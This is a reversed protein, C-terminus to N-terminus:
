ICFCSCFFSPGRAAVPGSHVAGYFGRLAAIQCNGWVYLYKYSFLLARRVSYHFSDHIANGDHKWGGDGRGLMLSGLFLCSFDNLICYLDRTQRSPEASSSNFCKKQGLLVSPAHLLYAQRMTKYCRQSDVLTQWLQFYLLGLLLSKDHRDSLLATIPNLGCDSQQCDRFSFVWSKVHLASFESFLATQASIALVVTAFSLLSWIWTCILFLPSPCEKEPAIKVCMCFCNWSKKPFFTCRSKEQYFTVQKTSAQRCRRGWLSLLVSEPFM